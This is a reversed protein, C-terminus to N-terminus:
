GESAGSSRPTADPPPLFDPRPATEGEPLIEFVAERQTELALRFREDELLFLSLRPNRRPEVLIWRAGFGERLVSWTDVVQDPTCDPLPCTVDTAVDTSLHHFTWYTGPDLAYQFIPDMGGLYHNTRNRAFLPGFTDWHTNFVLDGPESREELWSAAQALHDPALAVFRSNLENRWLSWAFLLPLALLLARKMAARRDPPTLHTVGTALGVVAFAAWHVLSRRAVVVTLFLFGAAMLSSTWLLIRERSPVAAVTEPEDLATTGLYALGALWPLLLPWATVFLLRPSLPALDVAFTLPTDGTKELLLEAIQIWALEAAGLPDPRLLWGLASGLLVLGLLGPVSAAFGSPRESVTRAPGPDSPNRLAPDGERGVRWGDALTAGAWVVGMGPGLWFMGLHIWTVATALALVLWPSRRVLASLLLLVLPISLVEPRVALYRFLVNPVALLFLAPWLAAGLFGHRLTLWTVGGLAVLTLSAAAVRIAVAPDAFAAAFPLLLAHFGWWLDAGVEGIVSFATWPFRTDLLSGDAYVRAHGVHYFADADAVGPYLLAHFALAVLAALGAAGLVAGLGEDRRDGSSPDGSTAEGM